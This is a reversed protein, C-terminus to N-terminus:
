PKDCLLAGLRAGRHETGLWAGEIIGPAEEMGVTEIDHEAEAAGLEDLMPASARIAVGGVEIGDCVVADLGAVGAGSGGEEDCGLEVGDAGVGGV